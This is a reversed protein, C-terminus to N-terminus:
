NRRDEDTKWAISILNEITDYWWKYAKIKEVIEDYKQQFFEADCRGFLRVEESMKETIGVETPNWDILGLEMLLIQEAEAYLSMSLERQSTYEDFLDAIKGQFDWKPSFIPHEQILKLTLHPQATLSATKLLLKNSTNTILYVFLAKQQILSLHSSPVLILDRSLACKRDLIGCRAVSWWKTIVIDWPQGVKITVYENPLEEPITVAEDYKVSLDVNAVRLFPLSGTNYKPEISPYFASADVRIDLSKFSCFYSNKTLREIALHEPKYFDSDLRQWVGLNRIEVISIDLTYKQIFSTLSSLLEQTM